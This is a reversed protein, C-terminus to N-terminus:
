GDKRRPPGTRNVRGFPPGTAGFACLARDIAILRASISPWCFAGKELSAVVSSKREKFPSTKRYYWYGKKVTQTSMFLLTTASTLWSQRRTQRQEKM